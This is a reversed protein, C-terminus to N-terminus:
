DYGSLAHWRGPSVDKELFITGNGLTIIVAADFQECGGEFYYPLLHDVSPQSLARFNMFALKSKHWSSAGRIRYEDKLLCYFFM